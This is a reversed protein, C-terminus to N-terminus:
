KEGMLKEIIRMRNELAKIYADQEIQKNILRM